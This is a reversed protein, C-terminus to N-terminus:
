GEYAVPDPVGVEAFAERREVCSPCTGCHVERDWYCSWTVEFPVKRELGMRVVEAKTKGSLPMVAQIPGKPYTWLGLRYLSNVFNFFKPSSDPFSAPDVGNHGGVIYRAGDREAFYAALGYFILNRAPIYSEPAALLVPNDVGEKKLDDVEKLFPLAVHRIGRVGARGTLAQIAATEKKPRAFYDFTLPLVDWGQDKAWALAVASDVGGSLLVIARDMTRDLPREGM